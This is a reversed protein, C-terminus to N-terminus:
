RQSMLSFGLIGIRGNGVYGFSMLTAWVVLFTFAFVLAEIDTVAASPQPAM